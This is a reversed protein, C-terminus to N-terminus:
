HPSDATDQQSPDTLVDPHSEPTDAPAEAQQEAPPESDQPEPPTAPPQTVPLFSTGAHAETQLQFEIKNALDRISGALTTGYGALGQITDPGLLACFMGDLHPQRGALIQFETNALPITFIPM